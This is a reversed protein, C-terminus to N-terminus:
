RALRFLALGLTAFIVNGSWAAALPSLVEGRGLIFFIENGIMFILGILVTIAIEGAARARRFHFQSLPAGILVMVFPAVVLAVKQYLNLRYWSAELGKTERQKIEQYLDLFPTHHADTETDRFVDPFDALPFSRWPLQQISWHGSQRERTIATSFDWRDGESRWGMGMADLQSLRFPYEDVRFIRVGSLRRTVLDASDVYFIGDGLTRWQHASYRAREAADSHLYRYLYNQNLYALTSVLLLVTFLPLMLRFLGMGSAKMAVLESTRSFASFTMVSALLVTMPLLIEILEPLSQATRHIFGLFSAWSHFAENIDGLLSSIVILLALALLVGIWNRLFDKGIYRSLINM